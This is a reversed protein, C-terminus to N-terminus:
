VQDGKPRARFWSVYTLLTDDCTSAEWEGVDQQTASLIVRPTPEYTVITYFGPRRGLTHERAARLMHADIYFVHADDQFDAPSSPPAAEGSAVAVYVGDADHLNFSAQIILLVGFSEGAKACIIKSGCGIDAIRDTEVQSHDPPETHIEGRGNTNRLWVEIGDRQRRKTTLSFHLQKRTHLFACPQLLSANFDSSVLECPGWQDFPM